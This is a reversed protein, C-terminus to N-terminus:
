GDDPLMGALLEWLGRVDEVVAVAGAARLEEEPVDGSLVGIFPVGANAACRADIPHDGVFLTDDKDVGLERVIRLYSDPYPKPRAESNRCEAADVLGAMDTLALAKGAYSACGRTLVGIKVGRERLLRLTEAAGPIAATEHVREMEVSDMIRDLEALMTRVESETAGRERMRAEFRDIITVITESQSYAHRDDGSAAIRDIVLGKFRPFDVTSVVLTDDLDFVVASLRGSPTSVRGGDEDAM